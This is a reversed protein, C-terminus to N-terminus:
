PTDERDLSALFDDGSIVEGREIEKSGMAMLQLFAMKERNAQEADKAKQYDAISLVVMKAEGNQTIIMPGQVGDDFSKVIDTTNSKLYSIPKIDEVFNM